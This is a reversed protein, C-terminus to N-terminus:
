IPEPLCVGLTLDCGLPVSCEYADNCTPLCWDGDALAVCRGPRETREDDACDEDATCSTTCIRVGALGADPAAGIRECSGQGPSCRARVCDEYITRERVTCGALVLMAVLALPGVRPRLEDM